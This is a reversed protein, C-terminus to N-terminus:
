HRITLGRGDDRSMLSIPTTVSPARESGLIPRLDDSVLRENSAPWWRARAYHVEDRTDDRVARTRYQRSERRFARNDAMCYAEAIAVGLAFAAVNCATWIVLPLGLVSIIGVPRARVHWVYTGILAWTMLVVYLAGSIAATFSVDRLLRKRGTDTGPVSRNVVHVYWTVFLTISSLIIATRIV